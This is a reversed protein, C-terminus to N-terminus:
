DARIERHVHVLKFANIYVLHLGWGGSHETAGCRGRRTVGLMEPWQHLNWPKLILEFLTKSMLGVLCLWASMLAGSM